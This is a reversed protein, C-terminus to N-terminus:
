TAQLSGDCVSKAIKMKGSNENAELQLEESQYEHTVPKYKGYDM